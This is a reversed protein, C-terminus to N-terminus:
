CSVSFKHIITKKYGTDFERIMQMNYNLSNFAVIFKQAHM